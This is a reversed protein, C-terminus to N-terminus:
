GYETRTRPVLCRAHGRQIPFLFSHHASILTVIMAYPWPQSDTTGYLQDRVLLIARLDERSTVM